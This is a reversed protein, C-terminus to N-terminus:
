GFLIVLYLEGDSYLSDIYSAVTDVVNGVERQQKQSSKGTREDDMQQLVPTWPILPDDKSMIKVGM